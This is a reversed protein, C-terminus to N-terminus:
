KGPIPPPSPSGSFPLERTSFLKSSIFDSFRKGKKAPISAPASKTTTALPFTGEKASSSTGADKDKSIICFKSLPSNPNSPITAVDGNFWFAMVESYEEESAAMMAM